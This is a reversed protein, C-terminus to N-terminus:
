IRVLKFGRFLAGGVIAPRRCLLFIRTLALAIFISSPIISFFIKEFQLTFDFNGRCGQVSPGFADDNLCGLFDM